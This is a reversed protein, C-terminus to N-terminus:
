ELPHHGSKNSIAQASTDIESRSHTRFRYDHRPHVGNSRSNITLEMTCLTPSLFPQFYSSKGPIREMYMTKMSTTHVCPM